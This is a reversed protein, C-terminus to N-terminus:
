RPVLTNRAWDVDKAPVCSPTAVQPVTLGQSFFMVESGRYRDAASYSLSYRLPRYQGYLKLVEPAADYSVLWPVQLQRTTESIGVHHAHTYFNEYLGEGKLYYPPDLYIFTLASVPTMWARLLDAADLRTLTIRNKFRAVKRVRQILNTKDYRASMKWFGTQEQGGILGGSLIGSRNTRNLFFTSFALDLDDPQAARQVSRQRLWEEVTVDTDHIRACLDDTRHLVANWFSFVSRDIDNIYVHDAYEEYLLSLAVSAGGAYPEVYDCGIVRNELLLLKIFNTVKRKGGPYRLPSPFTALPQKGSM